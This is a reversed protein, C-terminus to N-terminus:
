LGGEVFNVRLSLRDRLSLHHVLLMDRRKQPFGTCLPVRNSIGARLVLTRPVISAHQYFM